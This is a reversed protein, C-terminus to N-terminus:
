CIQKMLGKARSIRTGVTGPPIRLIYSIEEYSKEELYKLMLPEAYILPLLALCDRVHSRLEETTLDQEIDYDDKIEFTEPLRTEKRYKKVANMAENHAIRYLWSSFKKSTDFGRLNVFAKIFAEQVADTAKQEDQILYTIYRLLKVQYRAVLVEYLEQDQYCVMHVIDEDTTDAHDIM